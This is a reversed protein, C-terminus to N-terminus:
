FVFYLFANCDKRLELESLRKCNSLLEAKGSSVSFLIISSKEYVKPSIKEAWATASIFLFWWDSFSFRLGMSTENTVCDHDRSVIFPLPKDYQGLM